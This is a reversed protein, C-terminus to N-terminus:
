SVEEIKFLRENRTGFPLAKYVCYILGNRLASGVGFDVLKNGKEVVMESAKCLGFLVGANNDKGM